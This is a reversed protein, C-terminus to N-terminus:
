KVTNKTEQLNQFLVRNWSEKSRWCCVPEHYLFIQLAVFKRGESVAHTTTFWQYSSSKLVTMTYNGSTPRNDLLLTSGNKLYHFSWSIFFYQDNLINIEVIDLVMWVCGNKWLVDYKMIYVAFIDCHQKRDCPKSTWWKKPGNNYLLYVNPCSYKALFLSLILSMYELVM